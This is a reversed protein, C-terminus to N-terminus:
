KNFNRSEVIPNHMKNLQHIHLANVMKDFMANVYFGNKLHIFWVRYVNKYPIVPAIIQFFTVFGFILLISIIVVVKVFSPKILEPLQQVLVYHMSSELTFFTITVTVAIILTRFMLMIGGNSDIATTFLSSLGMVIIAGLAVLAFEDSINVGWIWAFFLYITIALVISSAIRIPSGLRNAKKVKSARMKDIVSGSSLFAHAKYFSHAVLHLMAASYAGMGCVMLSFGMHAVSSYGLSTKVSTQPLFVVSAFIATIAGVVLILVSAYATADMLFAMRVILFPGANLLGAHLLASVPTPTEMVEVLWGHAPFQASKLMASFAIFLAALELRLSISKTVLLSNLENFIDQLNGTNFELYLLSVAIVLCTDGIRAVIFKKRAAVIAGSRDRYFLLLSHLSISTLIWAIVLLGLNGSLVLLQVAAITIAMRGLFRGQGSDGDLYNFSFRVVIFGIIAIMTFMLSSLADIRISLGFNNIGLLSSEVLGNNVALYVSISASFLSILTSAKAMKKISTPRIGEQFFSLIATVIFIAPALLILFLLFNTQM